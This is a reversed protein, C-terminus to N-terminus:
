KGAYKTRNPIEIPRDETKKPRRGAGPFATEPAREYDRRWRRLVSPDIRCLQAVERVSDGGELRRLASLKFARTFKRRSSAM